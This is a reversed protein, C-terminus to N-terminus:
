KRVITSIISEVNELEKTNDVTWFSIEVISESDDFMYNIVSYENNDYIENSVYKMGNIGNIDVESAISNHLM